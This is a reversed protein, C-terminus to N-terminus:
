RGRKLTVEAKRVLRGDHSALRMRGDIQDGKVEGVLVGTMANPAEPDAPSLGTRLWGSEVTGSVALEGLAGTGKGTVAGDPAVTLEISGKGSRDTGEDKKWTPYDVGKPVDVEGKTTAFAGVWTGAHPSAPVASSTATTAGSGTAVPGTATPAATATTTSKSTEPPCGVLALAVAIVLAAQGGTAGRWGTNGM